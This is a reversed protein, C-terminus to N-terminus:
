GERKYLIWIIKGDKSLGDSPTELVTRKLGSIEPNGAVPGRVYLEGGNVLLGKLISVEDASKNNGFSDEYVIYNFKKDNLVRAVEEMTAAAHADECFAKTDEIFIDDKVCFTLRCNTNHRKEKYQEKIKLPNAGLGCNIGLISIEGSFPYDSLEFLRNYCCGTGWPDIGYVDFFEKRAKQYLLLIEKEGRSKEKSEDEITVSGYHYCFSDKLLVCKLGRRRFLLSQVDDPFAFSNSNLTFRHGPPTLEMLYKSRAMQIPNVLRTRIEHRYPDYKNNSEAWIELYSLDQITGPLEKLVQLNSVSTTAPVVLGISEDEELARMMNKIANPMVLVDNSVFLTHKGETSKGYNDIMSGNEKIDIQKTPMINEFYKKTEDSSGHNVLILECSIDTPLNHLLCSICKMTYEVKNYALVAISLDYKYRGTEESNKIYPNEILLPFENKYYEDWKEKYPYICKCFHYDVYMDCLFPILEFEIKKLALPINYVSYRIIRELSESCSAAAKELKIPLEKSNQLRGEQILIKFLNKLELSMQMFLKKNGNLLQNYLEPAAERTTQIIELTTSIKEDYM